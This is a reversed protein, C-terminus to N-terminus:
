VQREKITSEEKDSGEMKMTGNTAAKECGYIHNKKMQKDRKRSRTPKSFLNNM